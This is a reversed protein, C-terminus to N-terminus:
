QGFINGLDPMDEPEQTIETTAGSMGFEILTSKETSPKGNTKSSGESKVISFPVADSLWTTTESEVRITKFVVKSEAVGSGTLVETNFEGAPVTVKESGKLEYDFNIETGMAKMMGEMLGGSGKMRMPKQNGTQMIMEEGFARLNKAANGPDGKLADAAVLSKMVLRKGKKKRKGKKSVKYTDMAMEIWFYQKGNRTEEGVLSTKVVSITEKGKHNTTSDERIQWSGVPTSKLLDITVANATNNNSFTLIFLAAILLKPLSRIM